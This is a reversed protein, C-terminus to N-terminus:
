TLAKVEERGAFSGVLLGDATARDHGCEQATVVPTPQKFFIHLTQIRGTYKDSFLMRCIGRLWKGWTTDPSNAPNLAVLLRTCDKLEWSTECARQLQRNQKQTKGVTGGWSAGIMECERQATDGPTGEAGGSNGLAGVRAQVLSDWLKGRGGHQCMVLPERM